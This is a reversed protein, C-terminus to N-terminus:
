PNKAQAAALENFKIQDLLQRHYKGIRSPFRASKGNRLWKLQRESLRGGSRVWKAMSTMIKADYPLFGRDNDHKTTEAIREDATQRELLVVLAREVARDNTELLKRISTENWV